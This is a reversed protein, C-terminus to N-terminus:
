LPSLRARPLQLVAHTQDTTVVVTELSGDHFVTATNESHQWDIAVRAGRRYPTPCSGPIAPLRNASSRNLDTDM